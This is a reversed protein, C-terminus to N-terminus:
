NKYNKTKKGTKDLHQEVKGIESRKITYLKMDNTANMKLESKGINTIKGVIPMKSEDKFYVSVMGYDSLKIEREFLNNNIIDEFKLNM